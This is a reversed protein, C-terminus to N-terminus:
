SNVNPTTKLVAVGVGDGVGLIGEGSIELVTVGIAVITGFEFAAADGTDFSEM